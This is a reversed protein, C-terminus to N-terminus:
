REVPMLSTFHVKAVLAVDTVRDSLQDIVSGLTVPHWLDFTHPKESLFYTM